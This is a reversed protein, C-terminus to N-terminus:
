EVSPWTKPIDMRSSIHLGSSIFVDNNRDNDDNNNNNDNNNYNDFLSFKFPCFSFGQAFLSFMICQM